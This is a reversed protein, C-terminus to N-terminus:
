MPVLLHPISVTIGAISPETAVPGSGVVKTVALKLRSVLWHSGSKDSALM